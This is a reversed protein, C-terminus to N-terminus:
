AAPTASAALKAVAAQVVPIIVKSENVIFNVITTIKAKLAPDKVDLGILTAPVTAAFKEINTLLSNGSNVSSAAADIAALSTEAVALAAAVPAEAVPDAIAVAAEIFPAAQSVFNDVTQIVSPAKGFLKNFSAALKKADADVDAVFLAVDTEISAFTISM